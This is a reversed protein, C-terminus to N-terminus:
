KCICWQPITNCYYRPILVLSCYEMALVCYISCHQVLGDIHSQYFSKKKIFVSYRTIDYKVKMGHIKYLEVQFIVTILRLLILILYVRWRNVHFFDAMTLILWSTHASISLSGIIPENIYQMANIGEQYTDFLIHWSASQQHWPALYAGPWWCGCSQTSCDLWCVSQQHVNCHRCLPCPPM